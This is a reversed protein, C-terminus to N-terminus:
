FQDFDGRCFVQRWALGTGEVQFALSRAFVNPFRRAYRATTALRKHGLLAQVDRLNAGRENLLPNHPATSRRAM